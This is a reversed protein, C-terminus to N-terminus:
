NRLNYYLEKMEREREKGLGGHSKARESEKLDM